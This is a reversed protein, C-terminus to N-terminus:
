IEMLTFFMSSNPINQHLIVSKACPNRKTVMFPGYLGKKKAAGLVIIVNQGISHKAM